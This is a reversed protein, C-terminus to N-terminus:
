GFTTNGTKAINADIALFIRPWEFIYLVFHLKSIRKRGQKKELVWAQNSASMRM